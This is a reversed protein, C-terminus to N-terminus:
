IVSPRVSSPIRQMPFVTAVLIIGPRPSRACVGTQSRLVVAIALMSTSSLMISVVYCCSDPRGSPRRNGLADPRVSPSLYVTKQVTSRQPRDLGTWNELRWERESEVVRLAPLPSQLVNFYPNTSCFYRMRTFINRASHCPRTGPLGEPVHGESHSQFLSKTAMYARENTREIARTCVTGHTWNGRALWDYCSHRPHVYQGICSWKPFSSHLPTEIPRVPALWSPLRFFSHGRRGTPRVFSTM